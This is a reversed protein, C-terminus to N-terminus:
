DCPRLRSSGRGSLFEQDCAFQPPVACTPAASNALATLTLECGRMVDIARLCAVPQLGKKDDRSLARPHAETWADDVIAMGSTQGRALKTLVANEGLAPAPALMFRASPAYYGFLGTVPVACATAARAIERAPWFKDIGPLAVGLLTIAFAGLAAVGTIAWRSLRGSRGFQTSVYFLAAVAAISLAAFFSPTENAFWYVAAFPIVPILAAFAPWALFNGRPVPTKGDEATVLSAVALALAPFMPQVMYTGPKSSLLELYIVYGLVWAVFFRALKENRAPWLRSFAPVLLATAPLCGLVAALIFTGPWARLKMDQAGGLAALFKTFGLGSFPVGDQMARVILWPAALALAIAGYKATHLRDLWWMDRDMFRLAILTVAVLIPVLAANVLVGAGLAIWFLLALTRTDDDRPATYIRLLALMAVTAPLLSLGEAIALQSVLVTLPAVAFLAAAILATTSGALPLSLWYLALVSLTVAILGPLRYVTMNRAHQEGALTAAVGQAWTTGIPRFAHVDGDYRPDLWTGRAVMDRATEAWVAETRDVAPLRVIGPLYVALCLLTLALM